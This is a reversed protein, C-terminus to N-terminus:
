HCRGDDQWTSFGHVKLDEEHISLAVQNGALHPDRSIEWERMDLALMVLAPFAVIGLLIERWGPLVFGLILLL